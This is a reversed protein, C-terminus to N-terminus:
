WINHQILCVDMLFELNTQPSRQKQNGSVQAVSVLETANSPTRRDLWDDQLADSTLHIAAFVDRPDSLQRVRDLRADRLRVGM